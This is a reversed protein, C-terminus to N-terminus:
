HRQPAPVGEVIIPDTATQQQASLSFPATVIAMLTVGCLRQFNSHM